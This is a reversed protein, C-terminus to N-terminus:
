LVRWLYLWFKMILIAVAGVLAISVPVGICCLVVIIIDPALSRPKSEAVPNPQPFRYIEDPQPMQM